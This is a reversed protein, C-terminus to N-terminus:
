SAAEDLSFKTVFIIVKFMKYIMLITNECFSIFPILSIRLIIIIVDVPKFIIVIIMVPLNIVNDRDYNNKELLIM